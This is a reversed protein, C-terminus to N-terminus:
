AAAQWGSALTIRQLSHSARSAAWEEPDRENLLFLAQPFAKELYRFERFAELMPRDFRHVSEMDSFLRAKPWAKLPRQGTAKAYFVDEALGGMGWHRAEYGNSRFLESIFKTGCRNFGIQFVVPPQDAMAPTGPQVQIRRRQRREKM